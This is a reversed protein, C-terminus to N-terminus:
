SSSKEGSKSPEEHFIQKLYKGDIFYYKGRYKPAPLEKVDSQFLTNRGENWILLYFPIGKDSFEKYFNLDGQNVMPNKYQDNWYKADFFIVKGNKDVAIFDLKTGKLEGLLNLFEMADLNEFRLLTEKILKLAKSDNWDKAKAELEKLISWLDLVDTRNPEKELVRERYRDWYKPKEPNGKEWQYNHFGRGELADVIMDNFESLKEPYRMDEVHEDGFEQYLWELAKDEANSGKEVYDDCRIAHIDDISNREEKSLKRIPKLRRLREPTM